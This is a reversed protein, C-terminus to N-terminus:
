TIMTPWTGSDAPTLVLPATTRYTGSAVIVRVPTKLPGAAKIKRIADRAGALSGLPGDTGAGNPRRLRGTWGDYGDPAVYLTAGRAAALPGALAALVIALLIFRQHKALGALGLTATM